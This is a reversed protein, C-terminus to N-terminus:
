IFNDKIFDLREAYTPFKFSYSFYEKIKKNSVRKSDKYFNKLMDSEIENVEIKKLDKINLLKAGYLTIEKSSSPKDDALNYIEGSKFKSLSKFLVNAIDEVHIRSFYHNNINIIKATGQKLRVLINKENSYIGSLRFIQVSLNKSRQLSLWSNEAKLRAIGNPSTPRTKSNENVWGGKHDGYVSTASLYTIWKAKSYEIIKSFNKVVLDEQKEPPISVLIHDAEKLEAVLKDDFKNSNFLYSNCNVGNFKKKQSESRSTITLKIDYEETILKKIFNKAVQGFGFCFININKM